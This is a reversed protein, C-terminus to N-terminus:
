PTVTRHDNHEAGPATRRAHAELDLLADALASRDHRLHAADAAAELERYRPDTALDARKGTAAIRRHVARWLVVADREWTLWEQLAAKHERCEELLDPPVPTDSCERVAARGDADLEVVALWEALRAQLDPVKNM